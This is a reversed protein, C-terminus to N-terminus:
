WSCFHYSIFLKYWWYLHYFFIYFMYYIFYIFLLIKLRIRLFYLSPSLSPPYKSVFNFVFISVCVSFFVARGVSVSACVCFWVWVYVCVWCVYLSVQEGKDKLNGIVHHPADGFLLVSALVQLFYASRRLLKLFPNHINLLQDTIKPLSYNDTSWLCRNGVPWDM